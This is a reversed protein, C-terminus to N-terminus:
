SDGEEKTVNAVEKQTISKDQVVEVLVEKALKSFIMSALKKNQDRKIHEISYRPFSALLDKAKDLYQKIIPQRAEFLGKVQNAVLQSDVFITLEQVKMEKAIHLDALLAEYKDENNTTEFEFWLAYTYEKGKPNALILNAGSGDSRQYHKAEDTETICQVMKESTCSKLTRMFPLTKDAGKLLFHNLAALKRRLNQIESVSKPPQLDSIAKVKSPNAKIGQMTILHGSFIGEEETLLSFNLTKTVTLPGKGITIELPVEGLPWSQEESFGILPIKSDVRLSWISPKLDERKEEKNRKGLSSAAGIQSSRRDPAKIGSVSKHRAWSRDKSKQGKNNDRFSKKSREFNERRDNPAGNTAVERADVWMSPLNTSLHEVLSRTQLGHVFGSICQDKHLGLIQLTDNTYRTIFARTSEGERQKINHIALHTKTFKMQQSSHLWFKAKLDEYNLISCAKQSNWWIRTYDKLTYTFMHCAVRMLWKQMRITGEFLHLFNDPDGKGDYSGIYSPM